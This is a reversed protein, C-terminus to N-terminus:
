FAVAVLVTSLGSPGSPDRKLTAFCPEVLDMGRGEPFSLSFGCLITRKFDLPNLLKKERLFAQSMNWVAGEEAM